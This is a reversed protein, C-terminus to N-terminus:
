KDTTTFSKTIITDERGNEHYIISYTHDTGLELYIKTNSQLPQGDLLFSFCSPSNGTCLVTTSNIYCVAPIRGSQNVQTKAILEKETYAPLLTPMLQSNGAVIPSNIPQSQIQNITNQLNNVKNTLDTITSKVQRVFAFVGEVSYCSLDSFCYYMQQGDVNYGKGDGFFYANAPVDAKAFLPLFMLICVIIWKKM